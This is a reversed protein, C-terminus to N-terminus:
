YILNLCLGQLAPLYVTEPKTRSMPPNDPTSINDEEPQYRSWQVVVLIVGRPSVNCGPKTYISIKANYVLLYPRHDMHASHLHCPPTLLFVHMDEHNVANAIQISRVSM